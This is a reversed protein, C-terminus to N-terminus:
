SPSISYHSTIAIRNFMNIAIAVWTIAAVQPHTLATVPELQEARRSGSIQTVREALALADREVDDFYATERWAPLVAIREIAAGGTLADQTHMRLCFGCGNLQSVRIRVLELLQPSLGVELAAADAEQSMAITAQYLKPQLSGINTRDQNM